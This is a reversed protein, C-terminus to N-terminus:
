IKCKKSSLFSDLIQEEQGELNCINIKEEQRIFEELLLKHKEEWNEELIATKICEGISEQIDDIMSNITSLDKEVVANEETKKKRLPTPPPPPVPVPLYPYMYPMPYGLLLVSPPALM